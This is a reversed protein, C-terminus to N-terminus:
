VVVCLWCLYEVMFEPVITLITPDSGEVGPPLTGGDRLEVTHARISSLITRIFFILFLFKDCIHVTIELYISLSGWHKFPLYM